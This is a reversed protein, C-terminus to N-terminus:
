IQNMGPGQTNYDKLKRAALQNLYMNCQKM